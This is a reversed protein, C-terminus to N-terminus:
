LTSRRETNKGRLENEFAEIIKELDPILGADSALGLSVKGAYSIISASLGVGGPAPAWFMMEEVRYGALCRSEDPGHLSSILLTGKMGFISVLINEIQTPSMGIAGLSGLAVVAEPAKRIDDLRRRLTQLRRAPDAIGLPLAPLALGLHNGTLNTEGPLSLDVPVIARINLGEVPQNREDLYRRLAASVASLLAENASGGLARGAIKVDELEIWESWVLHKEVTCRGRLVTRRDPGLLLLKNLAATTSASGKGGGATKSIHALGELGNPVPSETARRGAEAPHFLRALLGPRVPIPGANGKADRDPMGQAKEGPAIEALPADARLDGVESDTLVLLLRSVTSSDALCHHVRMVLASKGSTMEVLYLKWLPREPDLPRSLLRAVFEGLAVRDGPEPLIVGELHTDLNFDPDPEWAPLGEVPQVRMKFRQHVLLRAEITQKLREPDIRGDLVLLGTTVALNTPSDLRLWAAEVSTTSEMPDSVSMM